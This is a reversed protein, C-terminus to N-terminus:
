LYADKMSLYGKTYKTTLEIFLRPRDANQDRILTLNLHQFCLNVLAGPQNGIIGALHCFLILQVQLWSVEFAMQTTALLIRAFEALDEIYITASERKTELVRKEKAM